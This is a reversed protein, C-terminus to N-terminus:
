YPEFIGDDPHQPGTARRRERRLEIELEEIRAQLRVIMSAMARVYEYQEQANMRRGDFRVDLCMRREATRLLVHQLAAFKEIHLQATRRQADAEGRAADREMTLREIQELAHALRMSPGFPTWDPGTDTKSRATASTGSGTRAAKTRGGKRSRTM